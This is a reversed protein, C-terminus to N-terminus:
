PVEYVEVLAIGTTGGAGSIQATYQGPPLTVLLAADRSQTALSFAGVSAFVAPLAQAGNGRWWDDNTELVDTGRLLALQPDALANGVGFAALTPGVARLLVTKPTNGQVSFGVILLNAGTGVLSRASVNILRLSSNADGEYLEVLGIGSAAQAVLQASYGGAQLGAYIAADRSRPDLTFAGVSRATQGIQDFSSSDGWNDNTAVQIDGRFLTLQPDSLAGAVGFASLSPGIGRLLVAKVGSGGAVVFGVILTQDGAGAATRVSLNALRSSAASVILTAVRSSVPGGSNSVVVAYNGADANAVNTLVYTANTAGAIARGDKSWQYSIPGSGSAVV